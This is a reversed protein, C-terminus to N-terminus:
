ESLCAQVFIHQMYKEMEKIEGRKGDIYLKKKQKGSNRKMKQIKAIKIKQQKENM